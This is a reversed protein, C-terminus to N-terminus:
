GNIPQPKVLSQLNVFTIRIQNSYRMAREKRSGNPEHHVGFSWFLLFIISNASL